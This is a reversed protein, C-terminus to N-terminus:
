IRERRPFSKTQRLAEGLVMAAATAVNLSRASPWMPIRIRADCAAAVRLPVGSTERGVMLIDNAHFKFAAYPTEAKTSLLILRRKERKRWANFRMWSAHHRITAQEVYDLGARRFGKESFAFGCPEIVHVPVGLCAALRIMTGTNQPIDPQFLTLEM